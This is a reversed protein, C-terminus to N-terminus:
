KIIKNLNNNKIELIKDNADLQSGPKIYIKNIVGISDSEIKHQMKMAEIIVLPTGKKVNTGKKVLIKLLKGHMPSFIIGDSDIGSKSSTKTNKDILTFYKGDINLFLKRINSKFLYDVMYEKKDIVCILERSGIEEVAISAINDDITSQYISNSDCSVFGYFNQNNLEFDFRSKIFYNSSWNKLDESVRIANSFSEDRRVLYQIVIAIQFYKIDIDSLKFNLNKSEQSLFSTTVEGISFTKNSMIESLFLKNTPVGFVVTRDIAKKLNVRANERDKGWSIIKGIMPDYYSSIKQGTKVGSDIRINDLESQKWFELTGTMPLFDKEPDEAYLRAEISHGSFSIDEQALNLKNGQAVLIQLEVIDINTIMETIAHEVQLRTNMELFYFNNNRDLLFEVTGAGSYNISKAIRIAVEGMRHRLVEDVVPSPSEEIIKQHRRQISCDREGLHICNGFNDSFIQVEIHRPSLIAKELILEKSGFSNKAESQALIINEEFDKGKEVLRMGKGGGGDAAKIMIPFGIIEAEKKLRRLSQIKGQYGPICEIGLKILERKSAAKNGMIKISEIDPGIFCIKEKKCAEALLYNESLFGYGPHVAQAGSDKAAKIINSINLYSKNPAASGICYSEDAMDVHLSNADESSYVAITRYGLKKSTKIIRVAVEGRNAILITDFKKKM